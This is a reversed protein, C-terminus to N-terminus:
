PWLQYEENYLVWYEALKAFDSFNIIQVKEGGLTVTNVDDFNEPEIFIAQMDRTGTGNTALYHIENESLAKSYIRMDDLKGHWFFDNNADYVRGKSDTLLRPAANTRVAIRVSNANGDGTATPGWGHDALESDELLGTLSGNIYMAMSTSPKFVLAYHNWKGAIRSPRTMQNDPLEKVAAYRMDVWRIWPRSQGSGWYWPVPLQTEMTQNDVDSGGNNGTVNPLNGHFVLVSSWEHPQPFVDDWDMWFTFSQGTAGDVAITSPCDIWTHYGPEFNMCKGSGNYGTYAWTFPGSNYLTGNRGHQTDTIVTGSGEDFKYWVELNDTTPDDSSGTFNLNPENYMWDEFMFFFDNYNVICDPKTYRSHYDNYAGLLPGALDGAFSIMPYTPNCHRVYVKINDFKLTGKGGANFNVGPYYGGRPNGIGLIVKNVESLDVNNPGTLDTLAVKWERAASSTTDVTLARQAAYTDSYYVVGLNGSADEIGLYLKDRIADYSNLTNGMNGDFIVGIACADFAGGLTWDMGSPNSYDLMTESWPGTGSSQTTNDYVLELHGGVRSISGSVQEYGPYAGPLTYGSKWYTDFDSSSEFDDIMIAAPSPMKFNWVDGKDTQPITSNVEDIRWYYVTGSTLTYGPSEALRSLPYCPDSTVGRYVPKGTSTNADNVDNWNTGFYVQHGNTSDVLAGADWSLWASQPRFTAALPVAFSTPNPNAAVPSITRFNYITHRDTFDGFSHKKVGWFYNVDPQPVPVTNVDNYEDVRWYYVSNLTLPGPVIFCPDTFRGQNANPLRKAVLGWDSSFWVQHDKAWKGPHWTLVPNLSVQTQYKRPEPHYANGDAYDGYVGVVFDNSGGGLALTRPNTIDLGAGAVDGNNEPQYGCGNIDTDEQSNWVMGWIYPPASTWGSPGWVEFAYTHGPELDVRDYENFDFALLIDWDNSGFSAMCPDAAFTPGSLFDVKGGYPRAYAPIYQAAADCVDPVWGYQANVDFLHVSFPSNEDPIDSGSGSIRIAIRTLAFGDTNGDTSFTQCNAGGNVPTFFVRMTGQGPDSAYSPLQNPDFVTVSKPPLGNSTGAVSWGNSDPVGNFDPWQGNFQGVLNVESIAMGAVAPMASGLFLLLVFSSVIKKTM